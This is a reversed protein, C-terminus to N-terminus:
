PTGTVCRLPRDQRRPTAVQRDARPGGGSGAGPAPRRPRAPVPTGRPPRPQAVAAPNAAIPSAAANKVTNAAFRVFQKAGEFERDEQSWAEAELGLAGGAASALGSGNKRGASRRLLRRARRRRAAASEQRREQARRRDGPRDAFAGGIRDGVRGEQDPKGLFQDLEAETSVGLLEAALQMEDAESFVGRRRVLKRVRVRRKSSAKRRSSSKPAISTMCQRVGKLASVGAASATSSSSTAAAVSGADPTRRRRAAFFAPRTDSAAQAAASKALAPPPAPGRPSPPGSRRARSASSARPSRSSRTRRASGELELGFM